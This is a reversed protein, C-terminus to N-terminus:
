LGVIPFDCDFAAPITSLTRCDGAPFTFTAMV